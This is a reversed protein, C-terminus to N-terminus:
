RRPLARRRARRRSAALALGAVGGLALTPARAPGAVRCGCGGGGGVTGGADPSSSVDGPVSADPLVAADPEPDPCRAAPDGSRELTARVNYLSQDVDLDLTEIAFYLTSCPAWAPSTGDFVVEQSRGVELRDESQVRGSILRVPQGRRAHVAHTGAFTSRRVTLTLTVADAPLTFSYHIPAIGEGIGGTLIPVGSYGARAAGDDLPTIRRCATLGREDLVARVREVDAATMTSADRLGEATTLALAAADDFGPASGISAITTYVLADVKEAGLEERLTWMAGAWIRGDFHGEGVLDEPCRLAGDLDRLAASRGFGDIGELSEGVHPDGQVTAAWYDSTGENLGLPEYHMGLPDVAFGVISALQDTVAHGLEHYVVDADYAFDTGAQGFLLYGCTDRNGQVFAANPYAVMPAEAFNTYIRMSDDLACRWRFGHDRELRDAALNAHHFAMVESFGDTWSAPDPTLLFDGSADPAAHAVPECAGGPQVDCSRVTFGAGTMSGPETLPSLEVETTMGEDSSPNRAFVLGRADLARDDIRLVRVPSLGVVVRARRALTAGELEFALAPELHSSPDTADSPAWVAEVEGVRAVTFGAAAQRALAEADVRRAAWLSPDGVPSRAAGEVRRVDVRGDARARVIAQAGEVRVGEHFLAFRDIRFGHAHVVGLHRWDGRPLQSAAAPPEDARATAGTSLALAGTLAGALLRPSRRRTV